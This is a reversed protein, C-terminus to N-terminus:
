VMLFGLGVNGCWRKQTSPSMLLAGALFMVPDCALGFVFPPFSFHFSMLWLLWRVCQVLGKFPQGGPVVTWLHEWNFRGNTKAIALPMYTMPPARYCLWRRRGHHQLSRRFKYELNSETDFERGHHRM